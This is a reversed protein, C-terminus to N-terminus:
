DRNLPASSHEFEMNGKELPVVETIPPNDRGISDVAPQLPATVNLGCGTAFSGIVGLTVAISALVKTSNNKM